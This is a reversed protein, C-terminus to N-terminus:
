MAHVELEIAAARDARAVGRPRLAYAANVLLLDPIARTRSGLEQLHRWAETSDAREALRGRVWGHLFPTERARTQLADLCSSAGDTHGIALALMARTSLHDVSEQWLAPGLGRLVGRITREVLTQLSPRAVGLAAAAAAVDVRLAESGQKPLNHRVSRMSEAMADLMPEFWVARRQNRVLQGAINGGAAAFLVPSSHERLATALSMAQHQTPSSQM